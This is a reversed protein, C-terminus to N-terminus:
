ISTDILVPEVTSNLFVYMYSNWLYCVHISLTGALCFYFPAAGKKGEGAGRMGEKAGRIGDWTGKIGERIGGISHTVTHRNEHM